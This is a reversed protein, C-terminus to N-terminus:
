VCTYVYVCLDASYTLYPHLHTKLLLGRCMSEPEKEGCQQIDQVGVCGVCVGGVSLVRVVCACVVCLVGYVGWVGTVFVVCTRIFLPMRACVKLHRPELRLWTVQSLNPFHYPPPTHTHLPLGRKPSRHRSTTTIARPAADEYIPLPMAQQTRSSQKSETSIHDIKNRYLEHHKFSKMSYTINPHDNPEHYQYQSAHRFCDRGDISNRINVHYSQTRSTYIIMQNTININHPPDFATGAM